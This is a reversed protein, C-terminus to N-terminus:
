LLVAKIKKSGLDSRNAVVVHGKPHIFWCGSPKTIRIMESLRDQVSWEEKNMHQMALSFWATIFDFEDDMFDWPMNNTDSIVISYGLKQLNNQVSIYPSPGDPRRGKKNRKMGGVTPIDLGVIEIKNLKGLVTCFGMGCGFDLGRLYGRKKALTVVKLSRDYNKQLALYKAPVGSVDSVQIAKKMIDVFQNYM